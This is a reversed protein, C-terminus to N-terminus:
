LKVIVFKGNKDDVRNNKVKTAKRSFWNSLTNKSIGTADSLAAKNGFKYYEDTEKNHYIYM